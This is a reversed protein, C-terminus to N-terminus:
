WRRGEHICYTPPGTLDREPYYDEASAEEITVPPRKIRRVFRRAEGTEDLAETQVTAKRTLFNISTLTVCRGDSGAYEYGILRFAGNSWRFRYRYHGRLLYRSIDLSGGMINLAEADLPDDGMGSPNPQVLLSKNDVVLRYSGNPQAFGILLRYAPANLIEDRHKSSNANDTWLVLSSKNASDTWLVLAVDARGDRNLDGQATSVVTWGPSVFEDATAAVQPLLPYSIPPPEDPQATAAAAILLFLGGGFKM